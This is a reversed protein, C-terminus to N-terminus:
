KTQKESQIYDYIFFREFGYINLIEIYQIPKCEGIDVQYFAKRKQKIPFNAIKQRYSAPLEVHYMAIQYEDHYKLGKRIVYQHGYKMKKKEVVYVCATKIDGKEVKKLAIYPFITYECVMKYFLILIVSVLGMVASIKDFLSKEAWTEEDKYM